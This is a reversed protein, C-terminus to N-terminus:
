DEAFGYFRDNVIAVTGKQGESLTLYTDKDVAYTLEKDYEDLFTVFYEEHCHPTKTGYSNVECRMRLVTARIETLPPEDYLPEANDEALPENQEARETKKRRFIFFSFIGLLILPMLVILTSIPSNLPM